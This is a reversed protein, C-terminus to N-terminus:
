RNAYKVERIDITDDSLYYHLIYPVDSVVYFKLVKRDNELFQKESSVRGGGLKREVYEKLFYDKQPVYKTLTKKEWNDEVCEEAPGQPTGLNEYFERTYEDCNLVRIKKAFIVVDDGIRFDKVSVHLGSGDDRLVKQRKLFIGQPVGSNTQKPQIVEISNDDLYFYIIVKRIRFQEIPTEVCSEKFYGYFRLVHRDM